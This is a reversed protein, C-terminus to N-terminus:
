YYYYYYYYYYYVWSCTYPIYRYCSNILVEYQSSVIKLFHISKINKKYISINRRVQIPKKKESVGRKADKLHQFSRLCKGKGVYFIAEVFGQFMDHESGDHNLLTSDLSKIVTPDILLYNFFTKEQRKSRFGVFVTNEERHLDPIEATRNLCLALEYKLGPLFHLYLSFIIM